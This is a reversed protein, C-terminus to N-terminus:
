ASRLSSMGGDVHLVQGTVWTSEDGLLYLAAAAQDAPSGVRGLPHREASRKRKQDSNLLREALPTDTLSPAIVNFRLNKPAYESALSRALGEVAGKAAAISAHYSMGTQVAVTSVLVVSGGGSKTMVPVARQLVRVAGLLNVQLDSLFADGSLREFPALNISGPFYGVGDIQDPLATATVDGTVDVSHHTVGLRSLEDSPTRSWVTVASGREALGRVVELGIGSTGGIILFSKNSWM